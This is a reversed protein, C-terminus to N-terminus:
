LNFAPKLFMEYLSLLIEIAILIIVAWELRNGRQAHALGAVVETIDMLTESKQRVNQYRGDLEFITSMEDYLSCAEENVWTVDPKDLLMIYSVTNLRFSLISASMRALKEDSVGLHGNYLDSIVVEIEDLLRGIEFETKELAVSKALVVAVIDAQFSDERDTVMFDNNLAVPQNTSSELRYNDIYKFPLTQVQLESDVKTLYKVFDIIEHHPFNIFVASGFHFIYVMKNEHQTSIGRLKDDKLLLSEEWKFKRNIGFHTAIKTLNIEKAIVVATFDFQM